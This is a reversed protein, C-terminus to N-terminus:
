PVQTGDSNLPVGLESAPYTRTIPGGDKQSRYRYRIITGDSQIRESRIIRLRRFSFWAKVSGKSGHRSFFLGLFPRYFIDVHLNGIIIGFCGLHAFFTIRM